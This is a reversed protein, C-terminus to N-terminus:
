ARSDRVLDPGAAARVLGRFAERDDASVPFVPAFLVAEADEASALAVGVADELTGALRTVVGRPALKVELYGAVEGFLVARRVARAAEDCFRGLAAREVLTAHAEGGETSRRGGAVLVVSDDPWCELSARAKEPTSAMGDDVVLAGHLRGLPEQRHPPPRLYDLAGALAEPTAGAALAAACAAVTAQALTRPAPAPGIEQDRGARRVVVAGDRVFAGESVARGVAFGLRRAPTLGAFSRAAPDDENVVVSGYRSQGRVIVEKAARYAEETGHLEVHDPWFCTVVAVDPSSSMFALHSSTLEVVVVDGTHTRDLGGVLEDTAWLHGLRANGSARVPIGVTGLLQVTLWATTSKGASGTIGVTRAGRRRARELVLESGCSVRVGAARLAAVRPARPPTWVDLYAIEAGSPDIGDLDAVTVDHGEGALLAALAEAEDASREVLVKM